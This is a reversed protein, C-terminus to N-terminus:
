LVRLADKESGGEREMVLKVRDELDAIIRVKLVHAVDKLFFHGALGHYVVNDDRLRKLIASRIYAIYKKRGYSVHDLIGPANEIARELKIEPVNWSKSAELLVDRSVCEYGLAAAVKEAVEKGRSASGRSVTIISM